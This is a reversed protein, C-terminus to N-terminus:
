EERGAIEPREIHVHYHVERPAPLAQVPRAAIPTAQRALLAQRQEWPLVEPACGYKVYMRRGAYLLGAVVVAGVALILWLFEAIFALVAVAVAVIAGLAALAAVLEAPDGHGHVHAGSPRM